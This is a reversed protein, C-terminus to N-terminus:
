GAASAVPKPWSLSIMEGGYTILSASISVTISRNSSANRSARRSVSTSAQAGPNADASIAPSRSRTSAAWRRSTSAIPPTSRDEGVLNVLAVPVDLVRCTLRGIRDLAEASSEANAGLEALARLRSPRRVVETVEADM